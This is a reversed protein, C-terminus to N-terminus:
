RSAEAKLIKKAKEFLGDNLWGKNYATRCRICWGQLDTKDAERACCLNCLMNEYDM